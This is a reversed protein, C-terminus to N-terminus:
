SDRDSEDTKSAEERALERMFRPVRRSYSVVLLTKKSESQTEQGEQSTLKEIDEM